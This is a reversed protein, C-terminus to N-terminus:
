LTGDFFSLELINCVMKPWCRDFEEFSKFKFLMLLTLFHGHYHEDTMGFLVQFLIPVYWNLTSSYTCTFTVNTSPLHNDKLYRIMTDSQMANEKWLMIEEMGKTQFVIHGKGQNGSFSTLVAYHKAKNIAMIERIDSPM